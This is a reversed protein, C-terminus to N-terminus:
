QAVSEEAWYSHLLFGALCGLALWLPLRIESVTLLVWALGLLVFLSLRPYKAKNSPSRGDDFPWYVNVLPPLSAMLVGLWALEFGTAVFYIAIILSLVLWSYYTSTVVKKM